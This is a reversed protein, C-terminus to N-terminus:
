GTRRLSIDPKEDRKLVLGTVGILGLVGLGATGVYTTIWAEQRSEAVIEDSVGPNNSVAQEISVMRLCTGILALLFPLLASLLFIYIPMRKRSVIVILIGILILIATLSVVFFIIFLDLSSSSKLYSMLTEM